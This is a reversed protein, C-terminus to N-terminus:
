SVSCVPLLAPTLKSTLSVSRFRLCLELRRYICLLVEVADLYDKTVILIPLFIILSFISLSFVSRACCAPGPRCVTNCEQGVEGSRALGDM